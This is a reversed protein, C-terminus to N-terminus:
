ETEPPNGETKKRKPQFKKETPYDIIYETKDEKNRLILEMGLVEAIEVLELTTFNDRSIKNNLNQRTVKIMQALDVKSIDKNELIEEIIEVATVVRVGNM